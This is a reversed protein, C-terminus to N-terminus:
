SLLRDLLAEAEAAVEFRARIAPNVFGEATMADLARLLPQWYGSVDLLGWKKRHLGIYGWTATEFLEDLTGLGGPLAAFADALEAMQAKREHLSDVIRLETLGRHGIERSQLSRPLVGIVEAGADLAADALAGMLGISAGGYVLGLGRRGLAAGFARAAELYEPRAGSSAGCYVCIRKM